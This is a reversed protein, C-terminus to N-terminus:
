PCPQNVPTFNTPCNPWNRPDFKELWAVHGDMFLYNSQFRDGPVHMSQPRVTEQGAIPSSISEVWSHRELTAMSDVKEGVLITEAPKLLTCNTRSGQIWFVAHPEYSRLNDDARIAYSRPIGVVQRPMRDSPCQFVEHRAYQRALLATYWYANTYDVNNDAATPFHGNHDSAYALLAIGLQRLNNACEVRNHKERYNNLAPRLLWILVGVALLIVLLEVLTFAHTRRTRM